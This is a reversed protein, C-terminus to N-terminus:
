EKGITTSYDIVEEEYGGGSSQMVIATLQENMRDIQKQYDKKKNPDTEQMMADSMSKIAASLDAAGSAVGQTQLWNGIWSTGAASDPDVGANWAMYRAEKMKNTDNSFLGEKFNKFKKLGGSGMNYQFDILM